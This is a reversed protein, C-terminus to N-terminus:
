KLYRKRTPTATMKWPDTGNKRGCLEALRSRKFYNQKEFSGASPLHIKVLWLTRLIKNIKNPFYVEPLHQGTLVGANILRLMIIQPYTWFRMWLSSGLPQSTKSSWTVSLLLNKVLPLYYLTPTKTFVNRQSGIIWSASNNVLLWVKMLEGERKILSM